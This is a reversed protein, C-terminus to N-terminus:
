EHTAPARRESSHVTGDTPSPSLSRTGSRTASGSCPLSRNPESSCCTSWARSRESGGRCCDPGDSISRHGFFAWNRMPEVRAPARELWQARRSLGRRNPTTTTPTRHRPPAVLPPALVAPHAPRPRHPRPREGLPRPPLNRVGVTAGFLGPRHLPPRTRDRGSMAGTVAGPYPPRRRPADLGPRHDHPRHRRRCALRRAVEGRVYAGSDLRASGDSRAALTEVDMTVVVTPRGVRSAPVDAHEVFYRCAAVLGKARRQGWPLDRLGLREAAADVAVQVWELGETDLRAEVRGGGPTPTILLSEDVQARDSRHEIQWRDVTRALQEVSSSKAAEILDAQEAPTATVARALEAAKAKSLGGDVLEAAVVPMSAVAAALEVDRRAAGRREGAQAALWATMDRAGDTRYGARADMAAIAHRRAADLQPWVRPPSRVLEVLTDLDLTDLADTHCAALLEDITTTGTVM